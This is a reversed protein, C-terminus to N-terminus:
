RSALPLRVVPASEQSSEPAPGRPLRPPGPKRRRGLRKWAEVTESAISLALGQGIIERDTAVMSFARLETAERLLDYLRGAPSILVVPVRVPLKMSRLMPLANWARGGIVLVAPAALILQRVRADVNEGMAKMSAFDIHEIESGKLKGKVQHALMEDVALVTRM